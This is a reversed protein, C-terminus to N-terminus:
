KPAGRFGEPMPMHPVVDRGYQSPICSAGTDGMWEGAVEILKEDCGRCLAQRREMVEAM